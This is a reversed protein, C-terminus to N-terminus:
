RGTGPDKKLAERARRSGHVRLAAAVAPTAEQGHIELLAQLATETRTAGLARLFRARVRPERYMKLRGLLLDAAAEGHLTVAIRGVCEAFPDSDISPLGLCLADVLGEVRGEACLEALAIKYAIDEDEGTARSVLSTWHVADLAGHLAPREGLLRAAELRLVPHEGLATAALPSATEHLRASGDEAALVVRAFAIYPDQEVPEGVKPDSGPPGGMHTYPGGDEPLGLRRAMKGADHLCYLRLQRLTPRQHWSIGLPEVVVLREAEQGDLTREVLLTHLAAEDGVKQTRVHRAVVVRDTAVLARRLHGDAYPDPDQAAAPPAFAAGFGAFTLCLFAPHMAM